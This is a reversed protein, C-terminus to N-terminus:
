GRDIRAVPQVVADCGEAQFPLDAAEREGAMERRDAIGGDDDEEVERLAPLGALPIGVIIGGQAAVSRHGRNGMEEDQTMRGM